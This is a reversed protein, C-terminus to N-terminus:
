QLGAVVAVSRAVCAEISAVDSAPVSESAPAALGPYVVRSRVMQCLLVPTADSEFTGDPQEDFRVGALLGDLTRLDSYRGRFPVGMGSVFNGLSWFVPTGNVRELPQITHPGHMVVLDIDAAATFATVLARDAPTPTSRVEVFVHLSVIVIEAGRARADDADRAVLAADTARSIRWAETPFGTNSNLAYSLQAIRVGDVEFVPAVAETPSRATGVHGIGAADLAELTSAIGAAGLDWSHNSATSCRDFGVRRLDGAVEFPAAILTYGLASRGRFGVADGPGAIPTEMHCIALDASQIIPAIPALLPAHDYRVGPPALVAAAGNVANEPLWDGVAVVSVSRPHTDLREAPRTVTAGPGLSAAAATAGAVILVVTLPWARGVGARRSPHRVDIADNAESAPTTPRATPPGTRTSPM